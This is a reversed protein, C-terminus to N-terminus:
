TNELTARLAFYHLYTAGGQSYLQIDYTMVDTEFLYGNLQVIVYQQRIKNRTLIIEGQRELHFGYCCSCVLM